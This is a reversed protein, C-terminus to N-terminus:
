AKRTPSVWLLPQRVPVNRIVEDVKLEAPLKKWLTLYEPKDLALGAFLLSAHRIPWEDWYMVDPKHPWKGKDLVFPYLFEMGKKIGRGDPLEFAWLNDEPASLIQVVYTMVDLNFLSYGYPKTRRLERPFSGDPAMQGPLLVNKYRERCEKTIKEDGVYRAFEAAQMVWCTGHNNEADREKTGYPHTNMWTLYDRFWKRVGERDPGALAGTDELVGAARAVEVLHLTDIVGISRGTEKGIIAQSYLLSPNMHTEKDIFWARLHRLAHESFRRDKSIVWAATLAPVQVSLRRMAKRHDDFNDPNSQGDRQIYPGKPNKPDPWWYDAQSFYDHKGGTSRPSSSATVTIPPEELYQRADKMVRPREIAILDLKDRGGAKGKGKAKGKGGAAALASMSMAPASLGLLTLGVFSRRRLPPHPM